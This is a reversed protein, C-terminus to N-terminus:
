FLSRKEEDWDPSDNQTARVSYDFQLRDILEDDLLLLLLLLSKPEFNLRLSLASRFCFHDLVPRRYRSINSSVM